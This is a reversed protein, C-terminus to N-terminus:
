YSWSSGTYLLETGICSTAQFVRRSRHAISVPPSLPDPLDMVHPHHHFFFLSLKILHTLSIVGPFYDYFRSALFLLVFRKISVELSLTLLYNSIFFSGMTFAFPFSIIFLYSSKTLYSFFVISLLPFPSEFRLLNWVFLESFVSFSVPHVHYRSPYRNM